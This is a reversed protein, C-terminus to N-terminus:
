DFQLLFIATELLFFFGTTLVAPIGALAKWLHRIRVACVASQISTALIVTVLVLIAGYVLPMRRLFAPELLDNSAALYIAAVSSLEVVPWHSVPPRFATISLVIAIASVGVSSGLFITNARGQLAPSVSQLGPNVWNIAAFIGVAIVGFFLMYQLRTIGNWSKPPSEVTPSKYPNPM